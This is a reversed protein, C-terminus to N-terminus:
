KGWAQFYGLKSMERVDSADLEETNIRSSDGGRLGLTIRLPWQRTGLVIIDQIHSVRNSGILELDHPSENSVLCRMMHEKNWLGPMLSMHYPSGPMSKVLDIHAVHGYNLDAGFAYLRDGCLDMKLVYRFQLMYDYLIKIIRTDAARTLWYDELMLLFVEDDITPLFDILMDSWRNFPYKSQAGLSVFSFNDPLKFSPIDFGVVVVEPRPHWYKNLLFYFPRLAPLYKNSTTVIIRPFDRNM